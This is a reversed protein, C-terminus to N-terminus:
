SLMRDAQHMIRYLFNVKWKAGKSMQVIAQKKKLKVRTIISSANARFSESCIMYWFEFNRLQFHRNNVQGIRPSRHGLLALRRSEAFARATGGRYCNCQWQPLSIKWTERWKAGGRVRELGTLLPALPPLDNSDPSLHVIRQGDDRM